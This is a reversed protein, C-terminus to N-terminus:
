TLIEESIETRFRKCSDLLDDGTVKHNDPCCFLNKDAVCVFSAVDHRNIGFGYESREECRINKLNTYLM